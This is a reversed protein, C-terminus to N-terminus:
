AWGWASKGNMVTVFYAYSIGMEKALAKGNGYRGRRKWRDRYSKIVEPTLKVLPHNELKKNFGAARGKLAMDAMNDYATGVFM